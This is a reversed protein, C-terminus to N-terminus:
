LLFLLKLLIIGDLGILFYFESSRQNISKLIFTYLILISSAVALTKQTNEIYTLHLILSTCMATLALIKVNILPYKTALTKLGDANDHYIDRIDFPITLSLVFLYCEIWILFLTNDFDGGTLACTSAWVYSIIFPKIYPIARLGKSKFLIKEYFVVIVFLHAFNIIDFKTLDKIFFLILILSLSMLFILNKKHKKIWTTRSSFSKGEKLPIVQVVNYSFLTAFFIILIKYINLPMNTVQYYYFSLSASCLSIFLSSYTLYTLSKIM